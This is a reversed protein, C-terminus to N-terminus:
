KASQDITPPFSPADHDLDLTANDNILLHREIVTLEEVVSPPHDMLKSLSLFALTRADLELRLVPNPRQNNTDTNINEM